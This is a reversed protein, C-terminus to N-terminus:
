AQREPESGGRILAAGILGGFTNTIVDTSEPWRGNGTLAQIVEIGVSFVLTIGATQLVGLSPFRWRLAMGIPIFILVNGVVEAIALRLDGAGDLADRLDQFPILRPAPELIGTPDAASALLTLVLIVAASTVLAADRATVGFAQSPSHRVLRVVLVVTGVIALVVFIGAMSVLADIAWQVLTGV